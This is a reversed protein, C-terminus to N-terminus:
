FDAVEAVILFAPLVPLQMVRSIWDWQASRIRQGKEDWIEPSCLCGLSPTCPFYNEGKYYDPPITTGHAIIESRGIKGAERSEQLGPFQVLPGLWRNYNEVTASDTGFFLDPSTEHPMVLQLNTTPGIWLSSSTDLGTIRFLGQPTNGNTLYYPLNSIARALQPFRFPQGKEDALWNGEPTRIMLYGPQNRDASQFSCLVFQGALFGPHRFDAKKPLRPKEGNWRQRYLRYYDSRAFSDTMNIEPFFGAQALYELAMAKNKPSAMRSWYGMLQPAFKRPYLTYIFELFARQFDPGTLLLDRLQQRVVTELGDPRYQLLELSWFLGKWMTSYNVRWGQAITREAQIRLSATVSDRVSKETFSFAFPDQAGVPSLFAAFCCLLLLKKM